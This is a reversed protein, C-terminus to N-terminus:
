SVGLDGGHVLRACIDVAAAIDGVPASCSDDPCEYM